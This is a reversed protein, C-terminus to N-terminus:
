ATKNAASIHHIMCGADAMAFASHFHYATKFLSGGGTDQQDGSMELMIELLLASTINSYINIKECRVIASYTYVNNLWAVGRLGIM